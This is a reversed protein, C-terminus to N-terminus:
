SFCVVFDILEGFFYNNCVSFSIRLRLNNSYHVFIIEFFCSLLSPVFFFLNWTLFFYNHRMSFNLLVRIIVAM